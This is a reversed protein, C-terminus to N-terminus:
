QRQRSVDFHWCEHKGNPDDSLDDGARNGQQRPAAETTRQDSFRIALTIPAGTQKEL